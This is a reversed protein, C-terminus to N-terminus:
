QEYPPISLEMGVVLTNPNSVVAKNAEYLFRWGASTGYYQMAISSLTDGRAVIHSRGLGMAHRRAATDPPPAPDAVAAVDRVPLRIRVGAMLHDPDEIADRNLLFINEALSASGLERAAISSLTDGPLVVYIRLSEPL